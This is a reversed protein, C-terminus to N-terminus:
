SAELTADPGPSCVVVREVGPTARLAAAVVEAHESATLVKVHPGADMTYFALTGRSRLDRVAQMAALSAASFYVSPPDAGLMSAHM